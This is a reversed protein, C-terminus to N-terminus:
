EQKGAQRCAPRCHLTIPLVVQGAITRLLLESEIVTPLNLFLIWLM